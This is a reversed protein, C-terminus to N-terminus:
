YIIQEARPKYIEKNTEKRIFPFIPELPAPKKKIHEIIEAVDKRIIERRAKGIRVLNEKYLYVLSVIAVLLGLIFLSRMSPLFPLTEEKEALKAGIVFVDVDRRQIIVDDMLIELELTYRGPYSSEVYVPLTKQTGKKIYLAPPAYVVVHEDSRARIQFVADRQDNIITVYIVNGETNPIELKQTSVLVSVIGEIEKEMDENVKPKEIEISRAYLYTSSSYGYYAVTIKHTGEQEIKIKDEFYGERNSEVAKVFKGDLLIRVSAKKPMGGAYVYGKVRVFDGANVVEPEVKISLYARDVYVKANSSALVNNNRDVLKVLCAHVGEDFPARVVVRVVKFENPKLTFYASQAYSGPMEVTLSANKIEQGGNYVVADLPFYEGGVINAPIKINDIRAKEDVGLVSSPIILIALVGLLIIRGLIERM